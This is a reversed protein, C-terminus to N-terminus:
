LIELKDRLNIVNFSIPLKEIVDNNSQAQRVFYKVRLSESM